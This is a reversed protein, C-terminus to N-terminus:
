GQRATQTGAIIDCARLEDLTSRGFAALERPERGLEQAITELAARGTCRRETLLAILRLTVANTELFRVDDNRNRYVVLRTPEAPPEIPRFDPGIRHVPFTYSLPWVLPTVVPTGNLLDGAPDVDMPWEETSVSLALEVWEYHMLELLYPMRANLAQQTGVYELLEQSIEQFYPTTARHDRLFGRVVAHWEAADLLQKTVPFASAAFHEVNNYFLDVYVRMRRADVDDPRPEHEPDRIHAAFRLQADRFRPLNTGRENMM